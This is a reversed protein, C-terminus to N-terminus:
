RAFVGDIMLGVDQALLTRLSLEVNIPSGAALERTLATIATAKRPKLGLATILLAGVPIPQGELIFAGSPM